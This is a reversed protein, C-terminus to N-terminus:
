KKRWAKENERVVTKGQQSDPYSWVTRVFGFHEHDNRGYRKIRLKESFDCKPSEAV